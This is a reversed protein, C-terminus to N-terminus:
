DLVSEKFTKKIPRDSTNVNPNSRKNTLPMEEKGEKGTNMKTFAEHLVDLITHSSSNSQSSIFLSQMKRAMKESFTKDHTTKKCDIAEDMHVLEHVLTEVSLILTKMHKVCARELNSDTLFDQHFDKFAGLSGAANIQLINTGVINFASAGDAGEYIIVTIKKNLFHSAVTEYFYKLAFLDDLQPSIKQLPQVQSAKGLIHSLIDTFFKQILKSYTADLKLTKCADNLSAQVLQMLEAPSRKKIAFDTYDGESSILSSAELSHKTANRIDHLTQANEKIPLHILFAALDRETSFLSTLTTGVQKLALQKDKEAIQNVLNTLDKNSNLPMQSFLVEQDIYTASQFFKAMAELIKKKGDVDQPFQEQLDSVGEWNKTLIAKILAAQAPTPPADLYDLHEFNAWFDKSLISLNKNQHWQDLCYKICSIFVVRQIAPLLTEANVLHGRNMIQETKPLFISLHMQDSALLKKLFEPVLQLHEEAVKDMKINKWYVGGELSGIHVQIDGCNKGKEFYPMSYSIVPKHETLANIKKKNFHIEIDKVHKCIQVLHSKLKILAATPNTVHQKKLVLTTGKPYMGEIAHSQTLLETDGKKFLRQSKIGDGQSTELFVQEFDRFVTFFGMGYNPDEESINKTSIGPIKIAKLEKAGMGSGNDRAVVIFNKEQDSHAEIELLTAGAEQSNKKVEGTWFHEKTKQQDIANQIRIQALSTSGIEKVVDEDEHLPMEIPDIQQPFSYDESMLQGDNGMLLSYIFPRALDTIVGAKEWKELIFSRLNERNQATPHTQITSLITTFDFLSKISEELSHDGQLPAIQKEQLYKALDLIRQQISVQLLSPQARLRAIIHSKFYEEQKKLVVTIDEVCKQMSLVLEQAEKSSKIPEVLEKFNNFFGKVNVKFQCKQQLIVTWVYMRTWQQKFDLTSTPIPIIYNMISEYHVRQLELKYARIWEAPLINILTDLTDAPLKLLYDVDQLHPILPLIKEKTSPKLRKMLLSLPVLDSPPNMWFSTIMKQDNCKSETLIAKAKVYFDDLQSYSFGPEKNNLQKVLNSYSFFDLYDNREHSTIENLKLLVGSLIEARLKFSINELEFISTSFFAFELSIEAPLPHTKLLDFFYCLQNKPIKLYQLRDTFSSLCKKKDKSLKNKSLLQEILSTSMTGDLLLNADPDKEYSEISFPPRLLLM